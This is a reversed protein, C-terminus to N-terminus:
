LLQTFLASLLSLFERMKKKLYSLLFEKIKKRRSHKGRKKREGKKKKKKENKKIFSNIQVEVVKVVGQQEASLAKEGPALVYIYPWKFVHLLLM